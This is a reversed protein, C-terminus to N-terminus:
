TVWQGWIEEQGSEQFRLCWGEGGPAKSESDKTEDTIGWFLVLSHCTANVERLSAVPDTGMTTFINPMWARFEFQVGVSRLCVAALAGAPDEGGPVRSTGWRQGQSVRSSNIAAHQASRTFITTTFYQILGACSDRACLLGLRPHTFLISSFGLPQQGPTRPDPPPFVPASMEGSSMHSLFGEQLIERVWAQQESDGRAASDDPYYIGTIDSVFSPIRSYTTVLLPSAVCGMSHSHSSTNLGTVRFPPFQPWFLSIALWM